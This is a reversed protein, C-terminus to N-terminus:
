PTQRGWQNVFLMDALPRGHRWGELELMPADYFQKVPGLCLLGLARAGEPLGLLSGLSVPDFMSVWGLGLNEARAALWLNEIACGVSCLVMETPLTRRGFVTGDDPALVVALLEACDRVGEVKLRLFEDSRMGLASATAKREGDVLSAMRERLLPDCVRVIRWPQMLGVSPACHAAQLVRQLVPDDLRTSPTFHRMDRRAAIVRYLSSRDAASFQESPSARPERLAPHEPEAAVAAPRYHPSLAVTEGIILLGPRLGDASAQDALAALGTAWVQQGERRGDQVIAAPTDADLGRAMLARAIVAVREVGMYFVRTQRPRALSTWDLNPSHEALHGPLFTCTHSLERHTLPIGAAAACGNAASVGPVVEFVLGAAQLAEVEEGGRGFIPPDGGKLQVVRRGRRAQEILQMQIQVQTMAGHGSAKGVHLREAQPLVLALVESSILHDHVVVEARQIRDLARLTLLDVPGPGVGVIHVMGPELDRVESPMAM